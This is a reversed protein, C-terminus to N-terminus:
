SSGLSLGMMFEFWMIGPCCLTGMLLKMYSFIFLLLTVPKSFSLFLCRSLM